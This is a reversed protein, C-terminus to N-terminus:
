AGSSGTECKRINMCNEYISIEEERESGGGSLGSYRTGGRLTLPVQPHCLGNLYFPTFGTSAHVANNLAFEVMPLMDSWNRPAEACVSRLTDELVHIVRETQGDTQPHDATSMSLKTGLLRFLTKWFAATFRPDRDSVITEPLGHHRFVCDMFLRAAQEGTVTDLVPALHVMKSLRCVFVSIGTNGHDDAPLGFAFDLSMSKWCDLPVTLSQLPASAHGFPKVRQCTECTKVYRAVWKYQCPWWFTQSVSLFTKERGLHGGSPADHAEHLIDFKADQGAAFFRALSAFSEDDRYALRIREYLDTTIRSIHALEYDPRRSLADALVNLKGPKYEVRFNYEAFFSLWCAMRQSLHPSNTATRLSAHNTYVVLPRSGMLHVRFKVLAYKMALLEKDHVPYNRQAAKLQRFQFSIFREHGDEDSQLLACGIAYDSADCVVSFPKSEHLYNALGLRKRLDKQSRPTPWAAIAKVKEPDARVGASCVFCGLVKIEEAGFVCKDINAYLKNARMVEFVRRLHGLHVEMATRGNEARSHVCIDDFYTQTFARLSRFLQTVLRNFTEPANSLGQPMVLWEWLMGSPTSVATLPIDSERMLIQYFGDVLDLVSYLTCGATNNLLVDKRKDPGAGHRMGAKAKAAFFADIVECQERALPWQRTVCYKTGPVLDLEHRIGRDPPLQSPPDKPVVDEFEKMLPYVPDKPNKLIESGLRSARQKRFEELVDEDMASSANLEEPTPEPRLLVMEAIEGATLDVVFDDLSMEELNLLEPLPELPVADAKVRLSTESNFVHYHGDSTRTQPAKVKPESDGQVVGTQSRLDSKHHRRRRHRGRRSVINGVDSSAEDRADDAMSAKHPVTNGVCSADDGVKGEQKAKVPERPVLNSVNSTTDGAEWAILAKRNGRPVVNGVSPEWRSIGQEPSVLNGVQHAARLVKDTSARVARRSGTDPDVSKTAECAPCSAWGSRSAERPESPKVGPPAEASEKVSDVTVEQPVGLVEAVGMFEESASAGQRDQRVGKSKVSTTVHSVLARDSLAPPSAGIAKGRWDIWPENKELWPMGLILDYKDMELVIFRETSDFDDFKVSLDMLVRPVEVLSGNALRVSVPGVGSNERLADAFKDANRAVSRRRAFNKSAGSDILFRFPYEYGRVRGHEVLLRDSSKRACLQGAPCHGSYSGTSSHVGRSSRDSNGRGDHQCARPAAVHTGPWSEPRGHVCDPEPKAVEDFEGALNRTILRPAESRGASVRAEDSADLVDCFVYGDAESDEYENVEEDKAESIGRASEDFSVSRESISSLRGHVSKFMKGQPFNQESKFLLPETAGM